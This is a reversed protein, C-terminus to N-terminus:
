GRPQGYLMHSIESLRNLVEAFGLTLLGSFICGIASSATYISFGDGGLFFDLIMIALWGGGAIVFIVGFASLFGPVVSRKPAGVLNPRPTSTQPIKADQSATKLVPKLAVNGSNRSPAASLAENEILVELFPRWQGSEDSLFVDESLKRSEVMERIKGIPLPGSTEGGAEAFYYVPLKM